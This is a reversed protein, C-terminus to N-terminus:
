PRLNNMRADAKMVASLKNLRTLANLFKQNEDAKERQLVKM